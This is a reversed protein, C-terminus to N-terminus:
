ACRAPPLTQPLTLKKELTALAQLQAFLAMSERRTAAADELLSFTARHVKRVKHFTWLVVLLVASTLALTLVQLVIMSTAM